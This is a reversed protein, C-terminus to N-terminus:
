SGEEEELWWRRRRRRGLEMVEVVEDEEVGAHSCLVSM